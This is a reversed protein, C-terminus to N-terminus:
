SQKGIHSLWDWAENKARGWYKINRDFEFVLMTATGVVQIAELEDHLKRATYHDQLEVIWFDDIWHWYALNKSAFSNTISNRQTPTGAHLSVAFYKM